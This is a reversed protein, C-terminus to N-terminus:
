VCKELDLQSDLHQLRQLGNPDDGFCIFQIGVQEKVLDNNNLHDVMSSIINSAPDSTDPWLGDTFIYLNLPRYLDAKWWRRLGKPMRSSQQCGSKIEYDHLIARMRQCMNSEGTAEKEKLVQLFSSSKKSKFKDKSNTFYLEMGDPDSNKVIYALLDLINQVEGWHHRMSRCNDILFVQVWNLAPWPRQTYM